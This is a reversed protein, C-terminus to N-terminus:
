RNKLSKLAFIMKESIPTIVSQMYSNVWAGEDYKSGINPAVLSYKGKENNIINSKKLQLLHYRLTKENIAGWNVNIYESLDPVSPDQNKNFQFYLLADLVSIASQRTEGPNIIGMSLAIWRVISRRTQSVEDSFNLDRITTERVIFKAENIM